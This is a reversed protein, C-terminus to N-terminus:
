FIALLLLLLTAITSEDRAGLSGSIVPLYDRITIFRPALARILRGTCRRGKRWCVPVRDRVSEEAVPVAPDQREREEEGKRERQRDRSVEFGTLDFNNKRSTTAFARPFTTSISHGAPFKDSSSSFINEQRHSTNM